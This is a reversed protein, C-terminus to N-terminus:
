SNGEINGIDILYGVVMSIDAFVTKVQIDEEKLFNNVSGYNDETFKQLNFVFTKIASTYNNHRANLINYTTAIQNELRQREIDEENLESDELDIRMQNIYGIIDSGRRQASDILDAVSKYFDPFASFEIEFIHSGAGVYTVYFKKNNDTYRTIQEGPNGSFIYPEGDSDWIM